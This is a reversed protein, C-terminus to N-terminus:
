CDSSGYLRSAEVRVQEILEVRGDPYWRENSTAKIGGIETM